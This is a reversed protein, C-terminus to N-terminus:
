NADDTESPNYKIGLAKRAAKLVEPDPKLPEIDVDKELHEVLLQLVRIRTAWKKRSDIAYWPALVTSTRALMENAADLYADWQERNRIDEATLKWSKYPNNLREEFRKDQEDKDIQLYFKIVRVGDDTLWRELENIERYARQWEEDTAFGEVREVLVRGYWSRDFIAIKGPHPLRSFFRFLYHTGQEQPKPAGIANVRVGRPDLPETIRRITGGKGAADVGEFVAVARLNQRHYAQQVHLLRQQWFELQTEYDSKDPFQDKPNILSDLSPLPYTLQFDTMTGGASRWLFPLQM